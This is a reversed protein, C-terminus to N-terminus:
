SSYVKSQSIDRILALEEQWPTDFPICQLEPMMYQILDHHLVECYRNSATVSFAAKVFPRTCFISFNDNFIMSKRLSIGAWRRLRESIYFTDPIDILYFGKNFWKELKKLPDSGVVFKHYTSAEFYPCFRVKLCVGEDLIRWFAFRM